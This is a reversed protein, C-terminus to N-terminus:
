SVRFSRGQSAAPLPKQKAVKSWAGAFLLRGRLESTTQPAPLRRIGPANSWKAFQLQTALAVNLHMAHVPRQPRRQESRHELPIRVSPPNKRKAFQLPAVVAVSHPMALVLM